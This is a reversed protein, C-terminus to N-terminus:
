FSNLIIALALTAMNPVQEASIKESEKLNHLLFCQFSIRLRDALNGLRPKAIRM